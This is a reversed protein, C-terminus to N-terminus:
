PRKGSVGVPAVPGISNFADFTRIIRDRTAKDPAVESMAFLSARAGAVDGSALQQRALNQWAELAGPAIQTIRRYVESVRHPDSGNEARVVHNNLLRVLVDRNNMRFVSLRSADGEKGLYTRCIEAIKPEPVLSGGAFPDIVVPSREGIQVLVHGPLNLVYANWGARRAMAVYLISLSIPLGRKRDLMGIFDANIPADYSENDGIFGLEGHLVHSLVAARERTVVAIHGEHCVRDEIEELKKLYPAIDTSEHDLHSLALSALDLLIDEDEILGISAVDM